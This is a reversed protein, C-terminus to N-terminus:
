CPSPSSLRPLSAHPCLRGSVRKGAGPLCSPDPVPLSCHTTTNSARVGRGFRVQLWRLSLTPPAPNAREQMPTQKVHCAAPSQLWQLHSLPQNVGIFVANFDDVLLTYCRESDQQAIPLQLLSAAGLLIYKSKLEKCVCVCIYM